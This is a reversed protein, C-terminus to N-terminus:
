ADHARLVGTNALPPLTSYLFDGHPRGDGEREDHQRCQAEKETLDPAPEVEQTGGSRGREEVVDGLADPRHQHVGEPLLLEHARLDDPLALRERPPRVEEDEPAEREEAELDDGHEPTRVARLEVDGQETRPEETPEVREHAVEELRRDEDEYQDEESAPAYRVGRAEQAVRRGLVGEAALVM